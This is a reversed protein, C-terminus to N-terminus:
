IEAQVAALGKLFLAARQDNHVKRYAVKIDTGYAYIEPLLPWIEQREIWHECAHRPLYGLYGGSLVMGLMAEVTSATASKSFAAPKRVQHNDDFKRASFNTNAVIEALEDKDEVGFAEHTKGCCLLQMENYIVVADLPSSIERFPGIAVNLENDLLAREMQPANMVAINLEVDPAMTAFSRIVKYIPCRLNTLIADDMAINVQGRLDGKFAEISKEFGILAASLPKLQSYVLHGGETLQFGSRGRDCLRFGLRTELNSIATSITSLSMNLNYQAASFGGAEAVHAFVNLLKLDTDQLRPQESIRNELNVVKRQVLQCTKQVTLRAVVHKKM